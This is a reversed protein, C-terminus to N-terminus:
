VPASPPSIPASRGTATPSGRPTAGSASSRASTGSRACPRSSRGLSANLFLPETVVFFVPAVGTAVFAVVRARVTPLLLLMGPILWIPWSKACLALGMLLGAFLARRLTDREGERPALARALAPRAAAALDRM